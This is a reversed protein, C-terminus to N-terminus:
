EENVDGVTNWINTQLAERFKRYETIDEIPDLYTRWIEAQEHTSSARRVQELSVPLHPLEMDDEVRFKATGAHGREDSIMNHLICCAKVVFEMDELDYFRSPRALIEFQSFLVAFVREVGKRASSQYAAYMREKATRPEPHPKAFICFDPYIGDALYYFWSINFGAICLRPRFPPWQGNRIANFLSSQNLISKDNKARPAGFMLHWIRLKDDSVVEMRCNPKKNMGKYQGQLAVPCRDWDWSACDVAGICGPFGLKAYHVEIQTVEDETPYRLWTSEFCNVIARTLRKLSELNLTEGTRLYDM